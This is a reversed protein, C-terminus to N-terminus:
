LCSSLPNMYKQTHTRWLFKISNLCCPHGLSRSAHEMFASLFWSRDDVRRDMYYKTKGESKRGQLHGLLLSYGIARRHRHFKRSHHFGRFVWNNLGCLSVFQHKSLRVLSYSPVAGYFLRPLPSHSKKKTSNDVLAFLEKIPPLTISKWDTLRSNPELFSSTSVNNMEENIKTHIPLHYASIDLPSLSEDVLAVRLVQSGFIIYGTLKQHRTHTVRRSLQRLFNAPALRSRLMGSEVASRKNRTEHQGETSLWFM